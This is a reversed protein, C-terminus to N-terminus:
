LFSAPKRGQGLTQHDEDRLAGGPATDRSDQANYTLSQQPQITSITTQVPTMEFWPKICAPNRRASRLYGLRNIFAPGSPPSNGSWSARGFRKKRRKIRRNSRSANPVGNTASTSLLFMRLGRLHLRDHLWRTGGLDTLIVGPVSLATDLLGGLATQDSRSPRSGAASCLIPWSQAPWPATLFRQDSCLLHKGSFITTCISM